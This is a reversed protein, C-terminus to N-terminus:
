DGTREDYAYAHGCVDCVLQYSKYLEGDPMLIREYCFTQNNCDCDCKLIPQFWLCDICLNMVEMLPMQLLM